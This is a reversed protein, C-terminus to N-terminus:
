KRLTAVALEMAREKLHAGAGVMGYVDNDDGTKGAHHDVFETVGNVFDYASEGHNGKGERYLSYVMNMKHRRAPPIEENALEAPIEFTERILRIVKDRDLMKQALARSTEIFTQFERTALGFVKLAEEYKYMANKTHRIHIKIAASQVAAKMGNLCVLRYPTDFIRYSSSGDFANFVTIRNEVIDGKRVEGRGLIAQLFIKRGGYLSVARTWKAAHKKCLVDLMGFSDNNQIPTYDRGVVSIIANTDNRVLAKHSDVHLGAGTILPQSEAIWNMNYFDLAEAASTFTRGSDSSKTRSPIATFLDEQNRM